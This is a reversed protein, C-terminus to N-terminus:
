AQVSSHVGSDSSSDQGAGQDSGDDVLQNEAAGGHLGPVAGSDDDRLQEPSSDSASEETQIPEADVKGEPYFSSMFARAFSQPPRPIAVGGYGAAEAAILVDDIEKMSYGFVQQCEEMNDRDLLFVNEPPPPRHRRAKRKNSM